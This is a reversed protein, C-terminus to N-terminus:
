PKDDSTAAAKLRYLLELADKPSLSDPNADSLIKEAETPGASGMSENAAAEQFLPLDDVLEVVSKKHSSNELSTLVQKARDIVTQPVGALKAVQIGYSKDASGKTVEHLFVLDGKWEKVRMTYLALEELKSKLVTLEHFHTAFLTRCKNIEHLHEVTAWAISLGDFTATGRGIEDLIVLSRDTALNLIAAAEVMEVMFTSRGEALDDSAGVRSFLRDIVGIHAHNAPVFSGMQALIAILANQRLFTSKGAMNPGTVLWLRGADELDCNNAVFSGPKNLETAAEVVPHRGLDIKFALSNDIRPRVWQKEAALHALASSFDIEALGGATEMIDEWASLITTTLEQFIQHELLVAKDAAESIKGALESLIISSFRVSSALTQRHIFYEQYPPQMLKDAHRTTIDIHYGLVKNHKIKLSQIGTESRYKGELEVILRRSEDRLMRFEDLEANYNSAVFGGDRTLLPPEAIIASALQKQIDSEHGLAKVIRELADPFPISDQSRSLCIKQLVEAAGMADRVAALDRPGGRDSGLRALARELDPASRLADRVKKRFGNAEFFSDVADLRRKIEITDTLPVVLRGALLRGAGATITKDILALLSGRREGRLTRTLELSHQAAADILMHNSPNKKRPPKLRPIDGKQTTALYDLIAGLASIDARSFSGYIKLSKVKFAAKMREEGRLSDFSTKPLATLHFAGDDCFKIGDGDYLDEPLLIERPSICALEDKIDEKSITTVCFEGTSMDTFAVSFEGSAKAVAALYNNSRAELLADETLTGPTVLRVVERKVVVKPGRKRAEAPDEIQDCVAVRFGSKILRALYIDAAHAPVGAMPIDEGLHQGRTTLAIDLAESAKVADEFFLEYFDGMRYFLLFDEHQQKIELYQEMMPTVPKDNNGKRSSAPFTPNKAKVPPNLASKNM